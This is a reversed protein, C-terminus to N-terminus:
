KSIGLKLSLFSFRGFLDKYYLDALKTKKWTRELLSHEKIIFGVSEFESLYLEDVKEELDKVYGCGTKCIYTLAKKFDNNAM